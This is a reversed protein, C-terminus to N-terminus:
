APRSPTSGSGARGSSAARAVPDARDARGEGRQLRGDRRRGIQGSGRPSTSSRAREGARGDVAPGRPLHPVRRQPRHAIVEDWEGADIELFPGVQTRGANNVLGDVRGFREIVRAVLDRPRRATPSTPPSRRATRRRARPGAGLPGSPARPTATTTSPSPRARPPPRSRSRPASGAAAARSSSSGVPSRRGADPPVGRRRPGRRAIRAVRRRPPPATSGRLVLETPLVEREASRRGAAGSPSTSRAAASRTSRCGCRRCARRPSRRPRSTTSAPSRSTARCRSGSSASGSCRASRSCTTPRASPRSRRTAPSCRMSGSRRRGRPQLEHEVVLREDFEIGADALGRRYGELRQRSSTLSTPGALFAIRRHGLTSWRARGDDRHGAENDVGVDAEGSPTRRSTCSRRATAGCRRWTGGCRTTAAGSRRPRQRRLDRDRRADLAAAARVLERARRDRDSSCTIVLYGASRRPTRSAACSRRSTRTPSTTSSSASWRATARSCAAPSPTRSTTSRGPPM